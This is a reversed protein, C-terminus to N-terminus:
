RRDRSTRLVIGTTSEADSCGSSCGSDGVFGVVGEEQSFSAAVWRRTAGAIENEAKKSFGEGCSVIGFGRAIQRAKLETLRRVLVSIGDILEQELEWEIEDELEERIRLEEEEAALRHHRSSNSCVSSRDDDDYSAPNPSIIIPLQTKSKPKHKVAPNKMLTKPNRRHRQM